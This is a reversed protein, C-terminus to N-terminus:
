NKRWDKELKELYDEPKMCQIKKVKAFDDDYTLFVDSSLKISASLVVADAISLKESIKTNAINLVMDTTIDVIMINPLARIFEIARRGKQMEKKQYFLIAIEILSITSVVGELVGESILKLIALSPELKNKEELFIGIFINTDIGARKVTEM